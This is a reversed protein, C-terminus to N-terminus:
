SVNNDDKTREDKDQSSKSSGFYYGVVFTFAAEVIGLVHILLKNEQLEPKFIIALVVLFTLAIVSMGVIKKIHKETIKM